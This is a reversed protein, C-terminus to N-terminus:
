SQGTKSSQAVQAVEDALNEGRKEIGEGLNFKTFSKVEINGLLQKVTKDPDKIFPQELLCVEKALKKLKGQVIKDIMQEPKGQERLQAAYIEAEKNKFDSDIQDASIFKPSAAAVHMSVDKLLEESGDNAEVIVSIKGGHNYHGLRGDTKFGQYRRIDVKEGCQLTLENTDEIKAERLAEIDKPASELAYEAVERAFSQFQDGKSVFDTECNVEVIVGSDCNTLSVVVGEAAIRSQKKQADALGKKRLFDVAAQLDGETEKLAEKCKMMGAGTMERLKKVDTASLGM